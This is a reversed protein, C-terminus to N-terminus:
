LFNVKKCILNYFETVVASLLLSCIVIIPVYIVCSFPNSRPIRIRDPLIRYIANDFLYSLLYGGYSYESIKKLIRKFKISSSLETNLLLRFICISMIACFLSSFEQWSGWVIKSQYSAEFCILSLFMDTCIFISIAKMRQKNKDTYKAEAFYCGIFYYFYSLM